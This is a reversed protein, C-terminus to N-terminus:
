FITSLFQIAQYVNWDVPIRFVLLNQDCFKGLIDDLVIL